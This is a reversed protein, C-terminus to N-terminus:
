TYIGRVRFHNFFPHNSKKCVIWNLLFSTCNEKTMQLDKLGNEPLKASFCRIPVGTGDEVIYILALILIFLIYKNVFIYFILFSCSIVLLFLINTMYCFLHREMYLCLMNSLVFHLHNRCKTKYIQAGIDQRM